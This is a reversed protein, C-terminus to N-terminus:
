KVKVKTSNIIKLGEAIQPELERIEDISYYEKSTHEEVYDSTEALCVQYNNEILYNFYEDNYSIGIGDSYFIMNESSLDYLECGIIRNYYIYETVEYTEKDFLLYINQSNYLKVTKGDQIVYKYYDDVDSYESPISVYKPIGNEDKNKASYVVPVIVPTALGGILGLVILDNKLKKLKEKKM